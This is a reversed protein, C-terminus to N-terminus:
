DADFLDRTQDTISDEFLRNKLPRFGSILGWLEEERSPIGHDRYLDIDVVFSAHDLLPSAVAGFAFNAKASIEPVDLVTGVVFQSSVRNGPFRPLINFYHGIGHKEFSLVNIDIRNIYRTAARTIKKYGVNRRWIDYNRKGAEFIQEWGRYPSLRSTTISTRKLLLIDTQDNSTLKYWRGIEDARATMTGDPRPGFTFNWDVLEESNPYARAFREKLKQLDGATLPTDIQLDLVAETIPPNAYGGRPM